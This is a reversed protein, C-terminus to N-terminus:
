PWSTASQTSTKAGTTNSGWRGDAQGVAPESRSSSRGKETRSGAVPRKRDTVRCWQLLLVDRVAFVTVVVLQALALELGAWGHGVSAESRSWGILLGPLSTVAVLLLWPGQM